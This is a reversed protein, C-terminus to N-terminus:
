EAPGNVIKKMTELLLEVDLPKSLHANMGSEASRRMDSEFVNASLAIIPIEARAPDDLGRIAQAAQWGDMVPMQLDMLVVDYEGPAARRVKEVAALGDEATEVQFGLERLIETEIEQNIENDEVLLLKRGGPRVEPEGACAAPTEPQIRFRLTVTFASGRGEESEASITGDMMDVINKAITLGLGIGHIGSLTTNRERTFPEFMRELFERSVGIGTDAVLLQYVACQNPLTEQEAVTVAVRGGSRTYTVANNALYMVLQKLKEQDGYIDDHIVGSCDLSFDIDKEVAQPRLFDCVERVSGCLSCATEKLETEGSETQSLELVEDILDLLQHSADEIRELYGRVADPDGRHSKALATFGFIANLPTRMDHSMNSLFTNKVGIARNANNLAEALLRKQELEQQFEGDVRRFGMVVQSVGEQQGVTMVRMQLYRAEGGDLVRFNVHCTRGSALRERIYKPSAARRFLERDEPHVWANAYDAMTGSFSRAQFRERFMPQCRSSLRYPLIQDEKLEVYFISEYNAGLGEIVELRRLHEQNLMTREKDLAEMMSAKEALRRRHKETADGVFVYFVDGITDSRVFHGYDEIWRVAGDKRIMRHEVYDLDYRSAAVQARISKEVAELDEPHVMGRFSGGTLEQFEEMTACRFMRLLARNAYVIKEGGGAYYILVGGPMEDMLRVVECATRLEQAGPLSLFATLGGPGMVGSIDLHNERLFDLLRVIHEVLHYDGDKERM